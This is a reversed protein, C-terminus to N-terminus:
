RSSRTTPGCSDSRTTCSRSPLFTPLDRLSWVPTTDDRSSCITPTTTTPPSSSTPLQFWRTSRSPSWPSSVPNAAPGDFEGGRSVPTSPRIQTLLLSLPYLHSFHQLSRTSVRLSRSVHELHSPLFQFTLISQYSANLIRSVIYTSALALLNNGLGTERMDQFVVIRNLHNKESNIQSIVQLRRRELGESNFRPYNRQVYLIRDYDTMNEHYDDPPVSIVRRRKEPQVSVTQSYFVEAIPLTMYMILSQLSLSFFGCLVFLSLLLLIRFGNKCLAMRSFCSPYSPDDRGKGTFPIEEGSRNSLIHIITLPCVFSALVM